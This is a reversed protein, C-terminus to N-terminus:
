VVYRGVREGPELHPAEAVRLPRDLFSVGGDEVFALLSDVQRRLTENGACAVRLFEERARGEYKLAEEVIQDCSEASM